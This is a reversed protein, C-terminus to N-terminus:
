RRSYTENKIHGHNIAQLICKSINEEEQQIRELRNKRAREQIKQKKLVYGFGLREEKALRYKENRKKYMEKDIGPKTIREEQPIPILDLVEDVFTISQRNFYLYSLVKKKHNDIIDQVTWDAYKPLATGIKSKLTMKRLLITDAM